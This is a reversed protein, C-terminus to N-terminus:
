DDNLPAVLLEPLRESDLVTNMATSPIARTVVRVGEVSRARISDFRSRDSELVLAELTQDDLWFLYRVPVGESRWSAPREPLRQNRQWDTFRRVEIAYRGGSSLVRASKEGDPSVASLWAIPGMPKPNPCGAVLYGCSALVALLLLYSLRRSTSSGRRRETSGAATM